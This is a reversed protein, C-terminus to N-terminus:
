KAKSKKKKEKKDEVVEGNIIKRIDEKWEIKMPIGHKVFIHVFKRYFKCILAYYKIYTTKSIECDKDINDKNIHNLEKVRDLLLYIAGICKTNNKSDNLVHLKEESAIVIVDNIFDFYQSPIKLIEMYRNIYNQIPNIHDPLDIIGIENLARLKRDGLSHFKEAIDGMQAIESPTRSINNAYCAYYICASMIGKKVDKRYVFGHEKIESFLETAEEIVNKPLSKGTTNNMNWNHMDKLTTMKRYKSYNASSKLLNRNQGYAGVIRMNMFGKDNVSSGNDNTTLNEEIDLNTENIVLGCGNCVSSNSNLINKCNMCYIINDINIDTQIKPIDFEEIINNNSIQKNLEAEDINLMENLISGWDDCSM